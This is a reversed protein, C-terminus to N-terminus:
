HTNVRQPLRRNECIFITSCKITDTNANMFEIPDTLDIEDNM